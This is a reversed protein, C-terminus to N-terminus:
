ILVNGRAGQGYAVKVNEYRGGEAGMGKGMEWNGGGKSEKENGGQLEESEERRREGKTEEDKQEEGEKCGSTGKQREGETKRKRGDKGKLACSLEGPGRYFVLCFL